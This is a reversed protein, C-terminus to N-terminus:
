TVLFSARLYSVRTYIDAKIRETGSTSYVGM